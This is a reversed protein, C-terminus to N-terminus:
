GGFVGKTFNFYNLKPAPSFSFIVNDVTSIGFHNLKGLIPTVVNSPFIHNYM